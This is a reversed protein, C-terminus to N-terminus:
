EVNKADGKLYSIFGELLVAVSCTIVVPSFVGIWSIDLQHTLKLYILLLTVSSLFNM